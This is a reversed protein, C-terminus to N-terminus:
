LLSIFGVNESSGDDFGAYIIGVVEGEKNLVPGGSMGHKPSDNTNLLKRGFFINEGTIKTKIIHISTHDFGNFAPYGTMYVTEGIKAKRKALKMQNKNNIQVPLSIIDNEYNEKSISYNSILTKSKLSPHLLFIFPNDDSKIPFQEDYKPNRSDLIDKNLIVHTSTYIYDNEISFGTGTDYDSEIVYCMKSAYKQIKMEETIDFAEVNFAKNFENAYKLYIGDTEGKVMKLYNIKGSLYNFLTYRAFYEDKTKENFTKLYTDLLGNKIINHLIARLQKVYCYNVNTKKNVVIGTVEQRVFRKFLKTKKNNFVFGNNFGGNVIRIVKDSFYVKGDIIEAIEKPFSEADTSFTIDDAYRTYKCNNKRAIFSLEKDIKYCIMNSIIPSTPAGQPLKGDNCTIKAIITAVKNSYNFPENMFLGRVRGFHINDFFNEIDGNLIFRKNVHCQANTVNSKGKIFGHQCALFEYKKELFKLLQRQIYKLESKPATIQRYDGSKKLINFTIYNDKKVFIVYRLFNVPVKIYTALEEITNITFNLKIVEIFFPLIRM